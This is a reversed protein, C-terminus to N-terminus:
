SLLLDVMLVAAASDAQSPAPRRVV